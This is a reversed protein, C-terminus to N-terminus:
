QDSKHEEKHEKLLALIDVTLEENCDNQWSETKTIKKYPCENCYKKICCELGKIVKERDPMM